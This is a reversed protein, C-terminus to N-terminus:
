GPGPPSSMCVDTVWRVGFIAVRVRGAGAPLDFQVSVPAPAVTAPDFVVVDAYFGEVLRGRDRLGYLRAPRDTLHTVAEEIPMLDHERVAKALLTTSFSFSDIMDLHAGADSAGVIARHDRWV